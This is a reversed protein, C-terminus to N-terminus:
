KPYNQDIWLKFSAIFKDAFPDFPPPPMTKSLIRGYIQEANSKVQEYDTLDFRWRMNGLYQQFYPSIDNAFSVTPAKKGAM